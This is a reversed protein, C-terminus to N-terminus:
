KIIIKQSLVDSRNIAQILYIGKRLHSLSYQKTTFKGSCKIKDNYMLQGSIDLIRIDVVGEMDNLKITFSGEAPNPYVNLKNSLVKTKEINSLTGELMVNDIYLNNGFGNYSEFVIQVNPNGTWESLDLTKCEPNVVAGCWQDASLPKFSSTTPPVTAFNNVLSDEGYAALRILESGCDTSLYVILSDTFLPFRQAYAYQFDVHAETYDSLNFIPSILQDRENLGNYTKINVFAAKSGPENGGVSTIEWTKDDDPNEVTWAKANFTGSEFGENFPLYLGGSYILDEEIVTTSGNLNTATFTLEYKYSLNFVVEPNKSHEDTGNVFAVNDPYFDWNWEIPNYISQDEFYVVEGLCPLTDSTIFHVEPLITTNSNIFDEMVITDSGLYNTAILTVDFLGSTEYIINQPNQETSTAPTGGEFKWLWETPGYKSLDTFDVGSGTPVSTINSTLDASPIADIDIYAWWTSWHDQSTPLDAFEQLTWFDLDDVPDM